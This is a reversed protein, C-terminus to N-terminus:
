RYYDAFPLEHPVHAPIRRIRPDVTFTVDVMEDLTPEYGAACLHCHYQESQVTQLSAYAGLLAGCGPWPLSRRLQFLGLRTAHLLAASTREAGLGIAAAFALANIRNLAPEPGDRVLKELAAAAAPDASQRLVAFLAEADSMHRIMRRGA